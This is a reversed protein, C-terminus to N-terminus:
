VARRGILDNNEVVFFQGSEKDAPGLTPSDEDDKLQAAEVSSVRQHPLFSTILIFIKDMLRDNM